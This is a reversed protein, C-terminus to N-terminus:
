TEEKNLDEQEDNEMEDLDAQTAPEPLKEIYIPAMKEIENRILDISLHEIKFDNFTQEDTIDKKSVYVFTKKLQSVKHYLAIQDTLPYGCTETLDFVYIIASALESVALEAQSEIVNHKTRNLTGPVDLLQIKKNDLTTYGVNITTTTFAYPAIKAKSTTLTNLLTSKGVNPFGYICVTFMEKIDPYTRLIHRYHDLTKFALKTGKIISAVRGYFQTSQAQIFVRDESTGIASAYSKHIKKITRKANDLTKIVYRLHIPDLTLNMLESYFYPLDRQKPFVEIIKEFRDVLTSTIVDLKILEKTRIKNQYNGSIKKSNSRERAKKFALDLITDPKELPPIYQFNM